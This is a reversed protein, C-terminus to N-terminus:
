LSQALALELLSLYAELMLSNGGCYYCTFICAYQLLAAFNLHSRPRVTHRKSKYQIGRTFFYM